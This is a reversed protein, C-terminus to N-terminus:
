IHVGLWRVAVFPVRSLDHFSQQCIGSIFIQANDIQFGCLVPIPQILRDPKHIIHRRIM